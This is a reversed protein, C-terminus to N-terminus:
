KSSTIGVRDTRLDLVGTVGRTSAFHLRGRQATTERSRGHPARVIRLAGARPVDVLVLPAYQVGFIVNQRVIAFRGRSSRNGQNGAYVAVLTFGDSALWANKARILAFPLPSPFKKPLIHPPIRSGRRAYKPGTGVYALTTPANSDVCTPPDTVLQEVGSGNPLSFKVTAAGLKCWNEWAWTHVTASWPRLVATVDVHARAEVGNPGLITVRITTHLACTRYGEAATLWGATIRVTKLGENTAPLAQQRLGYGEPKCRPTTSSAAASGGATAVAVLCLALALAVPPALPLRV